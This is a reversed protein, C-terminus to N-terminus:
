TNEDNKTLQILKNVSFPDIELKTFTEYIINVVDVTLLDNKLFKYKEAISGDIVTVYVDKKSNRIKLIGIEEKINGQYILSACPHPKKDSVINQYKESEKVLHLYEKDIYNYLDITNKDADDAHKLDLEYKEIQKTVENAVQFSINMAKAYLKFASKVKFQGYAIMQYSCDKGLKKRQAELFPEPNGTNLDLDPLSKTELIRSESMFREPYMQIPASIRDIKSFGLLTNIFFSVSSGRGTLTIRGNKKLAEKLIAYDLLFYDAM